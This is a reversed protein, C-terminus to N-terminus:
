GKGDAHLILYIVLLYAIAKLPTLLRYWKREQIFNAFVDGYLSAEGAEEVWLNFSPQVDCVNM